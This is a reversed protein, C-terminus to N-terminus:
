AQGRLRYAILGLWEKIAKTSRDLSASDPLVSLPFPQDLQGQLADTTAPTLTMGARRFAALARAMHIGSTVLLGSQFKERRWIEACERANEATTLSNGELLLANDPVGLSLLVAAMAGAESQGEAQAFGTGGSLLVKRVKGSKWIRYAHLVRDASEGLDPYPDFENAPRVGGGLVIAVDAVPYEEITRAPYQNELSAVLARAALPTSVAWLAALCTLSLTIGLKRWRAASLVLAVVLAVLTAGLPFALTSLIKELLM